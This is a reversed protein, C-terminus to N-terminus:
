VQLRQMRKVACETGNKHLGVGWNEFTLARTYKSYVVGQISSKQFYLILLGVFV